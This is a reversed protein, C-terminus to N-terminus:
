GPYPSLAAYPVRYGPVRYGPVRTHCIQECNSNWFYRPLEEHTAVRYGPVRTYVPAFTQVPEHLPRM